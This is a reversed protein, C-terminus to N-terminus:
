KSGFFHKITNIPNKLLLKKYLNQKGTLYNKIEWENKFLKDIKGNKFHGYKVTNGNINIGVGHIKGKNWFGIYAVLPKFSWLFMGFGNKYENKYYGIYKNGNNWTFIGLGNIQGNLVEGEYMRDDYLFIGYGTMQNNLFEGQYITGDPFRFLGIGQYKNMKFEGQYYSNNFYIEIGIDLLNNKLWTGERYINKNQYYGYGYPVNNKYKGIFVSNAQTNIFKCYNNLHNDRFIGSIKSNDDYIVIGFGNKKKTVKNIEGYYKIRKNNKNLFMGYIDDFIIEENLSSQEYNFINSSMLNKPNKISFYSYESMKDIQPLKVNSAEKLKILQINNQKIQNRILNEEQMEIDDEKYNNISNIGLYNNNNENINSNNIENINSNNNENINSNNNENNNTNNNEINNTNNNENNNNNSKFFTSYYNNFFNQQEISNITTINDKSQTIINRSNNFQNFKNNNLKRKYKYKRYARQIKTIYNIQNYIINTEFESYPTIFKKKPKINEIKIEDNINQNLNNKKLIPKFDDLNEINNYCCLFNNKKKYISSSNGM